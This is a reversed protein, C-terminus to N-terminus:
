QEAEMWLDKYLSEYNEAIFKCLEYDRIVLRAGVHANSNSFAGSSYAFGLGSAAGYAASGGWLLLRKKSYVLYGRDKSTPEWGENYYKIISALKAFAENSKQEKETLEIANIQEITMKKM